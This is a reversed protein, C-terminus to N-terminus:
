QVARPRRCKPMEDRRIDYVTLEVPTMRESM